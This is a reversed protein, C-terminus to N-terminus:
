DCLESFDNVYDIIKKFDLLWLLTQTEICM